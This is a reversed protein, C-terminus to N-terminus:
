RVTRARSGALVARVFMRKSSGYRPWCTTLTLHRGRLPDLVWAASAPIIRPSTTLRYDWRVGQQRLLV